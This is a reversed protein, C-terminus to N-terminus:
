AGVGDSRLAPIRRLTAGVRHFANRRWGVILRAEHAVGDDRGRGAGDFMSPLVDMAREIADDIAKQEDRRPPHLVFDVVPQQLRLTRPHGIGIRM